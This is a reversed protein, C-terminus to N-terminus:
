KINLGIVSIDLEDLTSGAHHGVFPVKKGKKDKPFEISVEDTAVALYNGLFPKIKDDVKTEGFLNEKLANEMTFLEYHQGYYAKFLGEFRKEMGPKVYFNACRKEISMPRILTELLDPHMKLNEWTVDKMGHDAIVLTAVNPHKQSYKKIYKQIKNICKKVKKHTVGYHHMLSDPNVWYAYTFSEEKSDAQEYSYKVFSRLHKTKKNDKNVPYGFILKAVEKNKNENILEAITKYPHEAQMKNVEGISEGTVDDVNPFVNVFKDIDHFYLTWGLWGTEIPFKGSLFSTTSAVTTPPLTSKINHIIHQRFFSDEPLDKELVVKGMGDFLFVIVKKKNALLDDIEKISDHFPKVGYHKLISNSLNTICNKYNPKNM